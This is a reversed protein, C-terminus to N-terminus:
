SAGQALRHHRDLRPQHHLLRNSLTQRNVWHALLVQHGSPVQRGLLVQHALLVPRGSLPPTSSM